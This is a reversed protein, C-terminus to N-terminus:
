RSESNEVKKLLKETNKILQNLRDKNTIFKLSKALKTRNDISSELLSDLEVIREEEYVTLSSNSNRKIVLKSLEEEYNDIKKYYKRSQIKIREIISLDQSNENEQWDTDSKSFVNNIDNTSDDGVCERILASNVYVPFDQRVKLFEKILESGTYNIEELVCVKNANLQWDCVLVDPHYNLIEFITEHVDSKPLICICKVEESRIHERFKNMFDRHQDEEEDVYVITLTM